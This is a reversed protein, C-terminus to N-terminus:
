IHILSLESYDLYVNCKGKDFVFMMEMLVGDATLVYADNRGNTNDHHKKALVSCLRTLPNDVDHHIRLWKQSQVGEPPTALSFDSLLRNFYYITGTHGVTAEHQDSSDLLYVAEDSVLHKLMDSIYEKYKFQKEEDLMSFLEDHFHLANNVQLNLMGLRVLVKNYERDVIRSLANALLYEGQNILEDYISFKFSKMTDTEKIKAILKTQSKKTFTRELNVFPVKLLKPNPTKKYVEENAGNILEAKNYAVVNNTTVIIHETLEEGRAEIEKIQEAMKEESLALSNIHENLNNVPKKQLPLHTTMVGIDSGPVRHLNIDMKEEDTLEILKQVPFYEDDMDVVCRHTSKDWTVWERNNANHGYVYEKIVTGNDEVEVYADPGEWQLDDANVPYLYLPANNKRYEAFVASREWLNRYVKEDKDGNPLTVIAQVKFWYMGKKREQKVPPKQKPEEVYTNSGHVHGRRVPNTQKVPAPQREPRKNKGYVAQENNPEIIFADYDVDNNRQQQQKQTSSDTFLSARDAMVKNMNFSNENRLMSNTNRASITTGGFATQRQQNPSGFMNQGHSPNRVGPHRVNSRVNNGHFMGGNRVNGFHSNQNGGGHRYHDELEYQFRNMDNLFDRASNVLENWTAVDFDSQQYFQTIIYPITANAYEAIVNYITNNNGPRLRNTIVHCHELFYMLNEEILGAMEGDRQAEEYLCQFANFRFESHGHPNQLTTFVEGDWFIDLAQKQVSATTQTLIEFSLM